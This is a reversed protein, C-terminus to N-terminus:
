KKAPDGGIKQAQAALTSLTITPPPVTDVLAIFKERRQRYLEKVKRTQEETFKLDKNLREYRSDISVSWLVNWLPRQQLQFLQEDTLLANEAAERAEDKARREAIRKLRADFKERQEPSLLAVLARDFERDLEDIRARYADIQPRLRQIEAALRHRNPEPHSSSGRNKSKPEAKGAAATSAFESGLVAPPPPVAPGDNETWWRAAFGAGFCSAAILAIALRQNM